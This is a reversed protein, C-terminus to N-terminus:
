PNLKSVELPDKCAKLLQAITKHLVPHIFEPALESLPVLTFRREPIGPHPLTLSPTDRVEAGYFLLDIDILRPGWKRIRVRGMEREVSLISDLLAEPSLASAIELVQNLFDPQEEIGWAASRYCSSEQLIAGVQAAIKERAIRLNHEADGENSCLLVFIRHNMPIRHVFM